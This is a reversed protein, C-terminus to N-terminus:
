DSREESREEYRHIIANAESAQAIINRVLEKITIDDAQLTIVSFSSARDIKAKLEAVRNNLSDQQAVLIAFREKLDAIEATLEDVDPSPSPEPPPSPLPLGSILELILGDVWCGNIVFPWRGRWGFRVALEGGPHDYELIMESYRGIPISRADRWETPITGMSIMAESALYWDASTEISPHVLISNEDVRRMPQSQDATEWFSAPVRHWVDPHIPVTLRYRGAPRTATQSLIGGCSSNRFLHLARKGGDPRVFEREPFEIPWEM